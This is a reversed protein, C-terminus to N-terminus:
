PALRVPTQWIGDKLEYIFRDHLRNERGQWFEVKNFKVKYGGWFSPLPIEGNKFKEKMELFKSELIGRASILHSQNSAWAGIQSGRPRSHFYKLDQVPSQRVAEGIFMVQRELMYWPFLLCVKPNNKIHQAKRSGLNTYFILNERDYDKLLVMRSYPQNNEDVTSVVVGNPDYIQSDIAQKLWKEFLDIPHETLDSEELGGRTYNRRLDAVDIM